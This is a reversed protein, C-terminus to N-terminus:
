GGPTDPPLVGYVGHPSLSEGLNGDRQCILTASELSIQKSRDHLFKRRVQCAIVCVWDFTLDNLVCNPHHSVKM